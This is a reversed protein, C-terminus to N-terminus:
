SKKALERDCCVFTCPGCGCQDAPIGCEKCENVVQLELGCDECVYVDGKKMEHCNPM